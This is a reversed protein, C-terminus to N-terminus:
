YIWECKPIMRPTHWGEQRVDIASLPPSFLADRWRQEQLLTVSLASLRVFSCFTVAIVFFACSSSPSWLSYASWEFGRFVLRIFTTCIFLPQKQLIVSIFLKLFLGETSRLTYFSISFLVRKLFHCGLCLLFFFFSNEEFRLYTFLSFSSVASSAFMWWCTTWKNLSLWFYDLADVM